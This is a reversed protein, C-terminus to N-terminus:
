RERETLLQRVAGDYTLVPGDRCLLFPGLQCHGCWGTGCQMNRELSVLIRSPDVGVNELARATFRMMIEPGCILARTRVPNFGATTLLTTVLGVHANWGPAGRDVTVEVHAGARSWATLEDGFLIQDPDRAGVLIFIRGADRGLLSVLQNAAGRLPALGVGGAILVVESDDLDSDHEPIQWDSGFPGRVGVVDGVNVSCLAHSTLGVDRISHHLLGDDRPADSLSIAIEGVGPASLMNFQGPRFALEKTDIAALLLTVVDSTERRRHAVRYLRPVAVHREVLSTALSSSATM